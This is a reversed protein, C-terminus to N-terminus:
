FETDSVINGVLNRARAVDHAIVATTLQEIWQVRDHYKPMNPDTSRDLIQMLQNRQASSFAFLNLCIALALGIDEQKRDVFQKFVRWGNARLDKLDAKKKEEPDRMGDSGPSRSVRSIHAANIALSFEEAFEKHITNGLAGDTIGRELAFAAAADVFGERFVCRENTSDRHGEAAWGEPSHVFIEHFLFYAMQCLHVSNFSAIPLDLTIAAARQGIGDFSEPFETKALIERQRTVRTRLTVRLEPPGQIKRLYPSYLKEALQVLCYFLEIVFTLCLPSKELIEDDISTGNCITEMRNTAKCTECCIAQIDDRFNAVLTGAAQVVPDRPSLDYAKKHEQTLVDVIDELYSSLTKCDALFASDAAQDATGRLHDVIASSAIDLRQARAKLRGILIRAVLQKRDALLPHNAHAADGLFTIGSM